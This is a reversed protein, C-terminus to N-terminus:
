PEWCPMWGPLNLSAGFAEQLDVVNAGVSIEEATVLRVGGSARRADVGWSVLHMVGDDRFYGEWDDFVVRLGEFDVIRVVTDMGGWGMPMDGHMRVDGDPEGLLGVLESFVRPMPDGFSFEGLGDTRLELRIAANTSWTPEVSRSPSVGPSLVASPSLSPTPSPAATSSPVSAPTTTRGCAAAVLATGVVM